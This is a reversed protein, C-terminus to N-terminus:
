ESKRRKGGVRKVLKGYDDLCADLSAKLQQMEQSQSNTAKLIPEMWGQMLEFQQQLVNLLTPPIKNVVTIKTAQGVTKAEATSEDPGHDTVKVRPKKPEKVTPALARIEAALERIADADFAAAPPAVSVPAAVPERQAALEGLRSLGGTLSEGVTHMGEQLSQLHQSLREVHREIDANDDDEPEESRQSMQTVGDTLADRIADLGDSFTSLQAIVQGAKDSTDIGKMKVNKTFTRKIEEWRKRETDNLQEALEKFKLMNAETDATLTQSDNEYSSTILSELEADNMIPLVREAIRNMNRYSGQLKFIPETRYDDSQAASRIYERNVRLIVDRIRILKKMVAVMENLEELSYNGELEIGERSDSQAMKIVAYVDKQSRTALTNLAPNSTLCNELYSMEFAEASDGIIEGLNYIDARNSLMDPIQFKEGSETYPNGAM